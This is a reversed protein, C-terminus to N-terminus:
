RPELRVKAVGESVTISGVRYNRRGNPWLWRNDLTIRGDRVRESAGIEALKPQIASEIRSWPLPAAGVGLSEVVIVVRDGDVDPVGVFTVVAEIGSQRVLAGIRVRGGALFEVYPREFPAFIIDRGSPWEDKEAIWRNVQDTSLEFEIPRRANLAESIRDGLSIVDRKDSELKAYDIAAPKYWAPKYTLAGGLAIITIMSTITSIIAMRLLFGAWTRKKPPM